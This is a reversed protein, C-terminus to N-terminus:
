EQTDSYHSCFFVDYYCVHPYYKVVVTALVVLVLLLHRTCPHYAFIIQVM